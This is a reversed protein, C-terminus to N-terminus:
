PLSLESRKLPEAFARLLFLAVEIDQWGNSSGSAFKTFIQTVFEYVSDSYLSAHLVAITDQFSLIRKRLDLFDTELESDEHDADQM